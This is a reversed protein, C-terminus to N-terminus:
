TRRSRKARSRGSKPRRIGARERAAELAGPEIYDRVGPEHHHAFILSTELRGIAPHSSIHGNVLERLHDVDRVAVHVVLDHSGAVYFTDVVEPLALLYEWFADLLQKEHHKAQVFVIARLNVGMAAPDVHAHFGRIHGEDILRRVRAHCSSPALDVHAALEKNSLRADNALLQLLRRDIRDLPRKESMM